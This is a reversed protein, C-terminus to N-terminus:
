GLYYRHQTQRFSSRQRGAKKQQAKLGTGSLFALTVIFTAIKLGSLNTKQKM